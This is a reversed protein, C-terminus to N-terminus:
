PAFYATMEISLAVSSSGGRRGGRGGQGGEDREVTLLNLAKLVIFQPNQELESIFGRLAQYEGAVTFRINTEPYVKLLEEGKKLSQGEEQKVAGQREMEIGSMLQLNHKKALANIDKYLTVEGRMQPKLRREKFANLSDLAMLATDMKTPGESKAKAEALMRDIEAERADLARLREQEPQLTSLYYYAVLVVIVILILTVAIEFPRLGLPMKLARRPASQVAAQTRVRASM